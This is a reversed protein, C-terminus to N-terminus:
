VVMTAVRHLVRRLYSIYIKVGVAAEPERGCSSSEPLAQSAMRGVGQSVVRKGHRVQGPALARSMDDVTGGDDRQM